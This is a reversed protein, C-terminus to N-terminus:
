LARHTAACRHGTLAYDAGFLGPVAGFAYAIASPILSKTGLAFAVGLVTGNLQSAFLRSTWLHV